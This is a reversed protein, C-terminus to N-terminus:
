LIQHQMTTLWDGVGNLQSVLACDNPVPQWFWKITGFSQLLKFGEVTSYQLKDQIEIKM